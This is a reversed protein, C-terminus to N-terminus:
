NSATNPSTYKELEIAILNQNSNAWEIVAQYQKEQNEFDLLPFRKEMCPTCIYVHEAFKGQATNLKKIKKLYGELDKLQMHKLYNKLLENYMNNEIFSQINSPLQERSYKHDRMPSIIYLEQILGQQYFIDLYEEFNPFTGAIGSDSYKGTPINRWHLRRSRINPPSFLVPISSSALCLDCIDLIKNGNDSSDVWVTEALNHSYTVIFSRFPLDGMRKVHMIDLLKQFISRFASIEAPISDNLKLTKNSLPFLIDHKYEDLTYDISPSFCANLALLNLVGTGSGVLMTDFEDILLGKHDILKEIIAIQQAIGAAAGTLMIVKNLKNTM